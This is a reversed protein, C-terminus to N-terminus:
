LTLSDVLYDALSNSSFDNMSIASAADDIANKNIYALPTQTQLEQYFLDLLTNM